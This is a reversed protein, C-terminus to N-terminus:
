PCQNNAMKTLTKSIFTDIGTMLTANLTFTPHCAEKAKDCTAAEKAKLYERPVAKLGTFAGNMDYTGSVWRKVYPFEKQKDFTLNTNNGDLWNGGEGQIHCAMCQGQNNNTNAKPLNALGAALWDNINMCKAFLALASTLDTPKAPGGGSSSSSGSTSTSGGTMNLGRETAEMNLWTNVTSMQTASMAPGTHVGHLLLLSSEPLSILGPMAETATYSKEPDTNMFLPAGSMGTTHCAACPQTGASLAPHVNAVYYKRAPSDTNVVGTGSTSAHSTTAGPGPGAGAGGSGGAGVIDVPQVVCGAAAALSITVSAFAILKLNM